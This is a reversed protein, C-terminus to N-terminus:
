SRRAAEAWAGGAVRRRREALWGGGTGVGRVEMLSLLAGLMHTEASVLSGEGWRESSSSGAPASGGSSDRRLFAEAMVQTTRVRAQADAVMAPDWTLLARFFALATWCLSYIPVTARHQAFIAEAEEFRNTFFLEIGRMVLENALPADRMLLDPNDEGSAVSVTVTKGRLLSYSNDLGFLLRGDCPPTFAGTEHGCRTAALLERRAHSSGSEGVCPEFTVSASVDLDGSVSVSWGVRAGAAVPLAHPEPLAARSGLTLEASLTPMTLLPRAHARTTRRSHRAAAREMM